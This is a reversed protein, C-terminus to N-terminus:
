EIGVPMEDVIPVANVLTLLPGTQEQGNLALDSHCLVVRETTRGLLDRLIRQLRADHAIEEDATTWTRGSWSRLFLPAGFLEDKGTLWRPSSADLWFQWRHCLRQSRYQFVTSLIVGRQANPSRQVPYPNASVTGRWLLEVFRGVDSLTAPAPPSAPSETPIYRSRVQSRLRQEVEWFHQATEMLERLAALQDYPLHSGRWLFHQIIRDITNVPSAIVRQQQQQQQEALWRLIAAYATTAQYGLRDWRPFSEVPLLQPRTPDPVFCHDAILEARVPDIRTREFWSQSVDAAPTQSLVVLMEAVVDRDILRGLGPYLFALLTLVARILPSSILPRQDNLSEVPIGKKTLIETLSYRAIADLGPAIVAIEGPEVQRSYIADAIADATKRLIQGRSTVQLGQFNSPVEPLAFPDTVWRVVDEAWQPALSAEVRQSLVEVQFEGQLGVWYIPDAGLGLRVCGDPNDTVGCPVGMQLFGEFWDRAMAPYEDVDDALVACFRESLTARYQALPWLHQGYLQTMVGYTLLGRETCWGYWAQLVEGMVAWTEPPALGPPMGQELMMPIDGMPVGALSALQLFDLTRRVLQDPRWGEIQLRGTEIQDQWLRMALAQETEPRLKLPFQAKLDLAELLLPWFLLVEDQIFGAPTTSLVPHAGQLANTLREALAIRNDGTAAFVLCTRGTAFDTTFGSAWTSLLEILRQTKGSRTPGTIWVSNPM